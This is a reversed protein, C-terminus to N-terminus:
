IYCFSWTNPGDLYGTTSAKWSTDEIGSGTTRTQLVLGNYYTMLLANTPAWHQTTGTTESHVWVHKLFGCSQYGQESAAMAPAASLVVLAVAALAAGL